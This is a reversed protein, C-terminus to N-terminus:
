HCSALLHYNAHGHHLRVPFLCPTVLSLIFPSRPFSLRFIHYFHQSTRQWTQSIFSCHTTYLLHPFFSSLICFLLPLFPSFTKNNWVNSTAAHSQLVCMRFAVKAPRMYNHSGCTYLLCSQIWWFSLVELWYEQTWTGEATGMVIVWPQCHPEFTRGCRVVLLVPDVVTLLFRLVDLWHEQTRTGEATGMVIIYSQCHPEFTRGCRVVLLVPDVVTLLFRLVDLWHEQTRTGEATGMVIVYSQCAERIDHRM